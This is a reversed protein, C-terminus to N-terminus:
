AANKKTKQQSRKREMKAENECYIRGKGNDSKPWMQTVKTDSKSWKIESRHDNKKRKMNVGNKVENECYIRSKGNDSKPWM